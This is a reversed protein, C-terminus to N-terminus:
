LGSKVAAVLRIVHEATEPDFRYDLAADAAEEPNLPQGPDNSVIGLTPNSMRLEGSNRIRLERGGQLLIRASLRHPRPSM